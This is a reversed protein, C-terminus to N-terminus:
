CRDRDCSSSIEPMIQSMETQELPSDLHLVLRGVRGNESKPSIQGSPRVAKDVASAIPELLGSGNITKSSKAVQVPNYPTIGDMLRAAELLGLTALLQAKGFVMRYKAQELVVRADLLRQEENLVEFTSRFGELFEKRSGEASVSAANVADNAIAQQATAAVAQNWASQIQQNTARQTAANDFSAQERLAKAQRVRSQVVGGQMIPLRLTVGANWIGGSNRGTLDPPGSYGVAGNLRVTPMSEARESSVRASASRELLFARQVAPSTLQAQRFAADANEPLLPLSPIPDLQAANHGVVAAFRGRSNELDLRAQQLSVRSLARQAEAQATDTRTLDGARRRASAAQVQRDFAAVSQERIGVIQRDRLVSAYADVVELLVANETERLAERQALMDSQAASVQAATRGGNFLIQSASLTIQSGDSRAPVFNGQANEFRERAWRTTAEVDMQMRYPGGAQVLAEDAVRLQARASRLTPNDVYAAALAEALTEAFASNSVSSMLAVAVIIQWRNVQM